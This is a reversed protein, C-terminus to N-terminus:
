SSRANETNNKKERRYSRRQHLQLARGVDSSLMNRGVLWDREAVLMMHGAQPQVATVTMGRDFFRTKGPDRRGFGAHIAVGLYPGGGSVQLRYAVAEPCAPRQLPRADM